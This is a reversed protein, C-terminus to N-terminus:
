WSTIAGDDVDMLYDVALTGRRKEGLVNDQVIGDASKDDRVANYTAEPVRVGWMTVTEIQGNEENIVPVALAEGTDTLAEVILYYNRADENVDPIRFVGTDEGQRSVITLTYARLIAARLAELDAVAARMADGDQASIAAEGDAMATEVAAKADAATAAALAADGAERVEAPLTVTLEIRQEEALRAAENGQWIQWGVVAVLVVLLIGLVTGVAKRRIWMRALFTNLGPRPPTYTFRSEKLAAIGQDLIRDTVELGQSEYIQRLRTRLASDRAEQGLEREVLRDQHRLTDVVDMALMVDDLQPAPADAPPAATDAM